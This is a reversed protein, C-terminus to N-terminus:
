AQAETWRLLLAAYVEANSAGGILRVNIALTDPGNPFVGVGGFASNTLEKLKDLPYTADGVPAAQFSFVQEGPQAWTVTPVSWTPQTSVQAFSPQGGNRETNLSEWVASTLNKPNLIGEVIVSQPNNNTRSCSVNCSELLLQSRNLLDRTGLDGIVQNSVSPALRLLFATQTTGSLTLNISNRGYNFIYGRDEDFLGDCLLASGWHSLTPSAYCSVQVVGTGIAHTDAIGASFTRNGGNIWLTMTSPRVAGTLTTSGSKGTYRILENDIYVTGTTAFRSNDALVITSQSANMAATLFSYGGENEISYRVPLNGTRMHAEYNINNNKIRHAFVWNGDSGRIMYDIFGAGYWTYQIGLMHMRNFTLTFGTPGTGDCRDINFENQKVRTEVVLSAKVLGANTVGRYDPNVYMTTDSAVNSVFYTMGRIVIKDGARVQSRFKTNTGTIQNSNSNISILGTIQQTAARRVVYVNMGDFEWFMGNQDDFCGARIIAGHWQELVVKQTIGFTPGSPNVAATNVVTFQYDDIISAVEYTQNYEPTATFGEVKIVAGVQLGHIINDVTITLTSFAASGTQTLNEIDYNPKFLTGTSWLLGKGSQYRFYKKSVRVVSAGHSPVGCSLLVGGDFPRHVLQAGSICYITVSAPTSASFTTYTIQTLSPVTDVYFPGTANEPNTGGSAQAYIPMGPVLGHNSNFTVTMTTTGGGSISAVNLSAGTYIGGRKIVTSDSLLSTGAVTGVVGWAVYTIQTSSPVTSVFFLGDARSFGTVNDDLGTISVGQGASIGHAINTTVTITSRPSGANTTIATISLDVGPIEFISPYGRVLGYGAWKTPQLGYEFDADIMSQGQSIRMREIADTGFRYPRFLVETEEILVSLRDNANHSSTNVRLTITTYGAERQTIKPFTATIDAATHVATTSAFTIDAFNYLIINRTVNTILLLQELRINGPIVITGVGIGGPTFVYQRIQNKAM